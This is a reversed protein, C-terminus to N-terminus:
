KRRGNFYNAAANIAARAFESNCPSSDWFAGSCGLQEFCSYSVDQSSGTCCSIIAWVCRSPERVNNNNNNVPPSSSPKENSQAPPVLGVRPREVESPFSLSNVGSVPSDSKHMVPPHTREENRSTTRRTPTVVTSTAFPRQNQNAQGAQDAPSGQIVDWVPGDEDFNNRNILSVETVSPDIPPQTFPPRPKTAPPLYGNSPRNPMFDNKPPLYAQGPYPAIPQPPYFIPLRGPSGWVPILYPRNVPYLSSQWVSTYANSPVRPDSDLSYQSQWILSRKKRQSKIVDRKDRNRNFKSNHFVGHDCGVQMEMVDNTFDLHEQESSSPTKKKAFQQKPGQQQQREQKLEQDRGQYERASVEAQGQTRTREQEELQTQTQTLRKPARKQEQEENSYQDAATASVLVVLLAAFIWWRSLSPRSMARKM